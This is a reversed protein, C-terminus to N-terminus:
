IEGHDGDRPELAAKEAGHTEVCPMKLGLAWQTMLVVEIVAIM